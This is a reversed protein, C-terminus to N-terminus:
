ISLLYTALKDDRTINLKRRLRTRATRASDVTIFLISAIDKTAINLRLFAALRLEAPSITPCVMSLRNFFNPHIMKLYMDFQSWAEGKLKESIEDKVEFLQQRLNPDLSGFSNDISVVKQQLKANFEKHCLIQIAMNTLEKNKLEVVQKFSDSFMLMFRVRSILEIKDTPKRIYDADGTNIVTQLQESTIVRSTLVIIPTHATNENTRIKRILGMGDMVPLEWETIILDPNVKLAVQLATLGNNARYFLYKSESDEFYSEIIDLSDIDDDVILIKHSKM